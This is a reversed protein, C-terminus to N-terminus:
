KKGEKGVGCYWITSNNNDLRITGRLQSNKGLRGGGKRRQSGINHQQQTRHQCRQSAKLWCLTNVTVTPRLCWDCRAPWVVVVVAQTKGVLCERFVAPNWGNHRRAAVSTWRTKDQQGSWWSQIDQDKMRKLTFYKYSNNEHKPRAVNENSILHIHIWIWQPANFLYLLKQQSKQKLKLTDQFSTFIILRAM